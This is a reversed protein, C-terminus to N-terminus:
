RQKSSGMKAAAAPGMCADLQQQQQQQSCTDTGGCKQLAQCSVEAQQEEDESGSSSGSDDRLRKHEVEGDVDM